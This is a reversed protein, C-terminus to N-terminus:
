YPGLIDKASEMFASLLPSKWKDRHRIMLVGTELPGEEWNIPALWGGSLQSQIAHKPFLSIGLGAAVAQKVAELSTYEHIVGPQVEARELIDELMRRYSCEVTTLNLVQGELDTTRVVRKEALPHSPTAALILQESKLMTVEMDQSRISDAYLFALDTVGKRLDEALGRHACTTFVLKALPHGATFQRIIRTFAFACLSEPVRITLTGRARAADSLDSQAEHTLEQIKVAYKLLREGAETLRITRGMRDFLPTGLDNELAQIQASVSSQVYHLEEAARTFNLTRAVAEFTKLQKLEM